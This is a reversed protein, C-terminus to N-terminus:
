TFEIKCEKKDNWSLLGFSKKKKKKKYLIYHTCTKCVVWVLGCIGICKHLWKIMEFGSINQMNSMSITKCVCEKRTSRHKKKPKESKKKRRIRQKQM